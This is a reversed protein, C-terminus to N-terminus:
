TTPAGHTPHLRPVPDPWMPKPSLDRCTHPYVPWSNPALAGLTLPVPVSAYFQIEPKIHITEKSSPILLQLWGPHVHFSVPLM